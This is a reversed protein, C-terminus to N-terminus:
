RSFVCKESYIGKKHFLELFIKMAYLECEKQKNSIKFDNQSYEQKRVQTLYCSYCQKCYLIDAIFIDFVDAM